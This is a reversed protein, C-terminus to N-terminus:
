AAASFFSVSYNREPSTAESWELQRDYSRHGAQAIQPQLIPLLRANQALGVIYEQNKECSHLMKWRCFSSDGRFVIRM